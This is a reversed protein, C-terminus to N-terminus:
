NHDDYYEEFVELEIDTNTIFYITEYLYSYSIVNANELFIFNKDIKDVSDDFLVQNKYVDYIVVFYIDEAYYEEAVKHMADKLKMFM